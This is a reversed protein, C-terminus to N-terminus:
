KSACINLSIAKGGIRYTSTDSFGDPLFDNPTYRKIGSFGSGSLIATLLEIDYSMYHTNGPYEQGGHIARVISSLPARRSLYLSALVAFDPVSIYIQGNPKLM